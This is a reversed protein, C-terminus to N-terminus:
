EMYEFELEGVRVTAGEPVGMEELTEYLGIKAFLNQLYRVAERNNLDLRRMLRELGAGEVVYEGDVETVTFEELPAPEETPLVLEQVPEAAPEAKKLERIIQGVRRMLAETGQGTAASIVFFEQGQSAALEELRPLNAQAAPLDAKNAVVIQPREALEASYMSLEANIRHYDDVPDRGEVGAADVVHLLLRTREVHRLFEMGLGVGAHAGEILGPIDALVFSSGEGLAVVGLNPKLTTFPYNAIKPRAASVVSLLTSKGANPYGVLGVDALLKLELKVWLGRGPEGRVAFAPALRTPSSGRAFGRGGRGGRLVLVWAGPVTLDLLVEGTEDDKVITGPPVRIELDEGDKGAMNKSKGPEGSPAVFKRRYRFDMLTSLGEDVVFYISGGRGGDGGAPGGAPVYKERRFRVVGDGGDGAKLYIRARDIFM